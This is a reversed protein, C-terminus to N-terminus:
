QPEIQIYHWQVTDQAESNRLRNYSRTKAIYERRPVHEGNIQYKVDDRFYDADTGFHFEIISGDNRFRYFDYAKFDIKHMRGMIYGSSLVTSGGDGGYADTTYIHRVKGEIIMYVDYPAFADAPHTVLEPIGDRSLDVLTYGLTYGSRIQTSLKDAEGKLFDVFKTAANKYATNKGRTDISVDQPAVTEAPRPAYDTEDIYIQPKDTNDESIFAYLYYRGNDIRFIRTRDKSYLKLWKDNIEGGICIFSTYDQNHEDAYYCGYLDSKVPMYPNEIDKTSINMYKKLLSDVTSYKIRYYIDEGTELNDYWLQVGSNKLSAIENICDMDLVSIGFINAKDSRRGHTALSEVFSALNIEQPRGYGSAISLLCELPHTQYFDKLKLDANVQRTEEKTLYRSDTMDAKPFNVTVKNLRTDKITSYLEYDPSVNSFFQEKFSHDRSDKVTRYVLNGLSNYKEYKEVFFGYSYKENTEVKDATSYLHHETVRGKSDYLYMNKLFVGDASKEYKEECYKVDNKYYTIDTLRGNWYKYNEEKILKGDDFYEIKNPVIKETTDVLSVNSKNLTEIKAVKGDVYYTNIIKRYKEETSMTVTDSQIDGYELNIVSTIEGDSLRTTTINTNRGQEDYAYEKKYENDHTETCLQDNSDYTYYINKNTKGFETEKIVLGKENYIYQRDMDESGTKYVTKSRITGDDNYTCEQIKYGNGSNYRTDQAVQGNPHYKYLAVPAWKGHIGTYLYGKQILQGLSNYMKVSVGDIICNTINYEKIDKHLLIRNPLIAKVKNKEAKANIHRYIFSDRNDEMAVLAGAYASPNTSDLVTSWIYYFAAKGNEGSGLYFNAKKYNKQYSFVGSVTLVATAILVVTLVGFLSKKKM